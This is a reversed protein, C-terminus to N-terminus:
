PNAFPLTHQLSLMKCGDTTIDQESIIPPLTGRFLRNALLSPITGIVSVATLHNAKYSVLFKGHINSYLHSHAIILIYM